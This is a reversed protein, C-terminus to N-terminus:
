YLDDRDDLEGLNENLLSPLILISKPSWRKEKENKITVKEFIVDRVLDGMIKGVAKKKLETDGDEPPYIENYTEVLHYTSLAFGEEGDSEEYFIRMLRQARLNTWYRDRKNQGDSLVVPDEFAERGPNKMKLDKRRGIKRNTHRFCNAEDPLKKTACRLVKQLPVGPNRSLYVNIAQVFSYYKKAALFDNENTLVTVHSHGNQELVSLGNFTARGIAQIYDELSYGPGRSLIMHTPVRTSSRFSVCRCMRSYGFIIIPTDLRVAKDMQSIIESVTKLKKRIFRGKRCGPFRFYVGRGTAAVAVFDTGEARFFNQTGAAQTLVNGEAYVRPNTAVLVLIGKHTSQLAERLMDVMPKSTYPLYSKIKEKNFRSDSIDSHKPCGRGTAKNNGYTFHEMQDIGSYDDTTLVEMMEVPVGRESLVQVTSYITASIEMRFSPGLAMLAAFRKEFIQVGDKTRYMADSEDVIIGFRAHPNDKRIGLVAATAKEIQSGTDAIVLRGSELSERCGGLLMSLKIKLDDREAIGKTIIILLTQLQRHAVACVAKVTSKGSQTKGSVVHVVKTPAGAPHLLAKICKRSVDDPNFKNRCQEVLHHSLYRATITAGFQVAKDSIDGVGRNGPGEHINEVALRFEREKSDEQEFKAFSEDNLHHLWEKDSDNTRYFDERFLCVKLLHKQTTQKINLLSFVELETKKGVLAKATKIELKALQGRTKQSIDLVNCIREMDLALLGGSSDCTAAELRDREFRPLSDEDFHTKVNVADWKMSYDKYWLCFNHLQKQTGRNVGPLAARQLDDERGLLTAVDTIAQQTLLMQSKASIDVTDYVHLLDEDPAFEEQKPRPYGNDPTELVRKNM